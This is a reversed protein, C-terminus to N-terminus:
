HQRFSKIFKRITTRKLLKQFIYLRRFQNPLNLIENRSDEIIQLGCYLICLKRCLDTFQDRFEICASSPLSQLSSTCNNCADKCYSRTSQISRIKEHYGFVININSHSSYRSNDTKEDLIKGKNTRCEIQNRTDTLKDTQGIELSFEGFDNVPEDVFGKAKFLFTNLGNVLLLTLILCFILLIQFIIIKCFFIQRKGFIIINHILSDATFGN